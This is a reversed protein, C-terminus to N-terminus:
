WSGGMQDTTPPTTPTKPPKKVEPMNQYMYQGYTTWNDANTPQWWGSDNSMLKTLDFYNDEGLLNVKRIHRAYIKGGTDHIRQFKEKDKDSLEDWSVERVPNIKFNAGEKTNPDINIKKKFDELNRWYYDKNLPTDDYKLKYVLKIADSTSTPMGDNRIIPNLSKVEESAEIRAIVEKNSAFQMVDNSLNRMSENIKRIDKVPNWGNKVIIDKVKEAVYEEAYKKYINRAGSYQSTNEIEGIAYTAENLFGYQQKLDYANEQLAQLGSLNQEPIRRTFERVRGFLTLDFTAMVKDRLPNNALKNYVYEMFATQKNKFNIAGSSKDFNMNMVLENYRSADEGPEVTAMLKTVESMVELNSKYERLKIMADENSYKLSQLTMMTNVFKMKEVPIQMRDKENQLSYKLGETVSSALELSEKSGIQTLDQVTKQYIDAIKQQRMLSTNMMSEYNAAMEEITQTGEQFIKSDQMEKLQEDTTRLDNDLNNKSQNFLAMTNITAQDQRKMADAQAQMIFGAGINANQLRTLEETFDKYPM